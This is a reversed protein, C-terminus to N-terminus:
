GKFEEQRHQAQAAATGKLRPPTFFAETGDALKTSKLKKFEAVDGNGRHAAGAAASSNRTSLGFLTSLGFFGTRSLLGLGLEFWLLLMLAIAGLSM